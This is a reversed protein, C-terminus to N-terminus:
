LDFIKILNKQDKRDTYGYCLYFNHAAFRNFGSVLRVGSCGCKKSWNELRELLARGIGHGRQHEDVAIGLITILPESYTCDYTSGHIYGM